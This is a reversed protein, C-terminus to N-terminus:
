QTLRPFLEQLPEQRRVHVCMSLNFLLPPDFEATLDVSSSEEAPLM